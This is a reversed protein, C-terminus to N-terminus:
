LVDSVRAAGLEDGEEVEDGEPELAGAEIDAAEFTSHRRLLAVGRNLVETRTYWRIRRLQNDTFLVWTVTKRIERLAPPTARLKVSADLTNM